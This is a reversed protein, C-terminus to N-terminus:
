PLITAGYDLVIADGFEDLTDIGFFHDDFDTKLTAVPESIENGDADRTTVIKSYWYNKYVFPVPARWLKTLDAQSEYAFAYFTYGNPEASFDEEVNYYSLQYYAEITEGTDPHITPQTWHM